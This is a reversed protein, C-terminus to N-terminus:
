GVDDAKRLKKNQWYSITYGYGNDQGKALTEVKQWDASADIAPFYTDSPATAEVMTLYGGTCYPLLRQYFEGGGALFVSVGDAEEAAVKAFLDELSHVVVAGEATYDKQRTIVLFRRGPLLGPLSEFTKRGMVLLGNMTTKKFFALDKPLHFLMRGKAGIGYDKATAVIFQM